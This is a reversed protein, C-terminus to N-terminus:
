ASYDIGALPVPHPVNPMHSLSQAPRFAAQCWNSSAAHKQIGPVHMAAGAGRMNGEVLCSGEGTATPIATVMKKDGNLVSIQGDADM